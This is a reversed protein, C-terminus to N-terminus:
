GTYENEEKPKVLPFRIPPPLRLEDSLVIGETLCRRFITNMVEVAVEEDLKKSKEWKEIITKSKESAYLIEGQLNIEGIKPGKEPNYFIDFRFKIAVVDKLNSMGLDKKEVKEITPTSNININGEVKKDPYINATISNFNMGVIPM